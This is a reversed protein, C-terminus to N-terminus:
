DKIKEWSSYIGKFSLELESLIEDKEETNEQPKKFGFLSSEEFFMIFGFPKKKHVDGIKSIYKVERTSLFVKNNKNNTRMPFNNVELGKQLVKVLYKRKTQKKKVKEGFEGNFEYDENRFCRFLQMLSMYSKNPNIGLVKSTKNNYYFEHNVFDYFAVAREKIKPNQNIFSTVKGGFAYDEFVESKKIAIKERNELLRKPGNLWDNLKENDSKNEELREEIVDYGTRVHICAELADEVDCKIRKLDESKKEIERKLYSNEDQVPVVSESLNEVKKELDNKIERQKHFNGALEVYNDLLEGKIKELRKYKESNSIIYSIPNKCFEKITKLGNM